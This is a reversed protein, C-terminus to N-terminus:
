AIAARGASTIVYGWNDDNSDWRVLGDKQLGKLVRSAAAGAGQSTMQHDPWIEIAIANAAILDFRHQKALYTM